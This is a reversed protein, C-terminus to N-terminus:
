PYKPSVELASRFQDEEDFSPAMSEPEDLSYHDNKVMSLLDSCSRSSAAEGDAFLASQANGPTIMSVNSPTIVAILLRNEGPSIEESLRRSLTKGAKVHYMDVSIDSMSVMDDEEFVECEDDDEDQEDHSQPESEQTGQAPFAVDTYMSSDSMGRRFMQKQRDKRMKLEFSAREEREKREDARIKREREAREREQQELREKEEKERRLQDERDRREKEEVERRQQANKILTQVRGNSVSLLTRGQKSKQSTDVKHTELLAQLISENNLLVCLFLPSVHDGAIDVFEPFDFYAFGFFFPSGGYDYQYNYTLEHATELDKITLKSVYSIDSSRARLCRMLKDMDAFPSVLSVM